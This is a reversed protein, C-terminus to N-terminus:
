VLPQMGRFNDAGGSNVKFETSGPRNTRSDMESYESNASGLSALVRPFTRPPLTICRTSRAAANAATRWELHETTVAETSWMLKRCGMWMPCSMTKRELTFRTNRVDISTPTRTSTSFRTVPSIWCVEEAYKVKTASSLPPQRMAM